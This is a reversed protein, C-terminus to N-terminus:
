LMYEPKQRRLIVRGFRDRLLFAAHIAGGAGRYKTVIIDERSDLEGLLGCLEWYFHALPDSDENGECWEALWGLQGDDLFKKTSM